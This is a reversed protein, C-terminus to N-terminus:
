HPPCAGATVLAAEWADQPTCDAAAFAEAECLYSSAFRDLARGCGESESTPGGSLGHAQACTNYSAVYAECAAPGGLGSLWSPLAGCHGAVLSGAGWGHAWEAGVGAPGVSGVRVVLGGDDQVWADADFWLATASRGAALSEVVGSDGEIVRAGPAYTGPWPDLGGGDLDLYGLRLVVGTGALVQLQSYYDDGWAANTLDVCSVAGSSLVLDASGTIGGGWTTSLWGVSQVDMPFPGVASDATGAPEDCAVLALVLLVSHM